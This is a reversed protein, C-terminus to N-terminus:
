WKEGTLEEYIEEADRDREDANELYTELATILAAEQPASLRLTKAM